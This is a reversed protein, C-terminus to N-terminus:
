VARWVHATIAILEPGRDPPDLIGIGPPRQHFCCPRDHDLYMRFAIVYKPYMQVMRSCLSLTRRCAKGLIFMLILM